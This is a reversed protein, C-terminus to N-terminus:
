QAVNGFRSGGWSHRTDRKRLVWLGQNVDLLINGWCVICVQFYSWVFYLRSHKNDTKKLCFRKRLPDLHIIQVQFRGPLIGKNLANFCKYWAARPFCGQVSVRWAKIILAGYYQVCTIYFHAYLVAVPQTEEKSIITPTSITWSKSKSRKVNNGQHQHLANNSSAPGWVVPVLSKGVTCWGKHFEQCHRETLVGSQSWSGGKLGTQLLHAKM